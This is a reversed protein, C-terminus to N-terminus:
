SSREMGEHALELKEIAFDNGKATVVPATLKTPWANSLTWSPGDKQGTEDLLIVRVQKRNGKFNVGKTYVDDHWQSLAINQVSDILGHTLVVNTNKKLGNIKYPTPPMDGWRYEIVDHTADSITIESFMGTTVGDLELRFRFNRYPDQRTSM